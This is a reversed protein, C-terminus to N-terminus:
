FVPMRSLQSFARAHRLGLGLSSALNQIRKEQNMYGKPLQRPMKNTTAAGAGFGWAGYDPGQKQEWPKEEKQKPALLGMQVPDTGQMRAMRIAKLRDKAAKMEPSDWWGRPEGYRHVGYATAGGGALAAAIWPLAALFAISQKEMGSDFDADTLGAKKILMKAVKRFLRRAKKDVATKAMMRGFDEASAMRLMGAM